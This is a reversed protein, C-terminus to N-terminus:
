MMIYIDDHNIQEGYKIQYSRRGLSAALPLSHRPMSGPRQPRPSQAGASPPAAYQCMGTAAPPSVEGVVMSFNVEFRTM